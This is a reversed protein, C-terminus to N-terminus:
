ERIFCDDMNTGHSEIFRELQQAIEVAGQRTLMYRVTEANRINEVGNLVVNYWFQRKRPGIILKGEETFSASARHFDGHKKIVIVLRPPEDETAMVVSLNPESDSAFTWRSKWLKLECYYSSPEEFYTKVTSDWDPLQVKAIAQVREICQRVAYQWIKEHLAYIALVGDLESSADDVDSASQKIIREVHKQVAGDDVMSREKEVGAFAAFDNLFYKLRPAIRTDNCCRKVWDAIVTQFDRADCLGLARAKIWESKKISSENPEKGYNLYFLRVTAGPFASRLHRLYDHVQNKLDGAFHSKSEIAIAYDVSDATFRILIDMRRRSSLTYCPPEVQVTVSRANECKLDLADLFAKLFLQGQGHQATPKLLYGIIQSVITERSHFFSLAHFEPAEEATHRQHAAYDDSALPGIQALFAELISTDTM